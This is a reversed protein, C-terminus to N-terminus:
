EGNEHGREITVESKDRNVVVRECLLDWPIVDVRATVQLFEPNMDFPKTEIRVLGNVVLATAIQQCLTERAHAMSYRNRNFWDTTKIHEPAVTVYKEVTGRDPAKTYRINKDDGLRELRAKLDNKHRDKIAMIARQSEIFGAQMAVTEKYFNIENIFERRSKSKM